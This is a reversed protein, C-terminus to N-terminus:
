VINHAIESTTGNDTIAVGGAGALANCFGIQSNLVRANEIYVGIGGAPTAGSFDCGIASVNRVNPNGAAAGRLQLGYGSAAGSVFLSNRHIANVIRVSTIFGTTAGSGDIVIGRRHGISETDSIRTDVLDSTDTVLTAVRIADKRISPNPNASDVFRCEYGEIRTPGINGGFAVAGIAVLIGTQDSSEDDTAETRCDSIQPGRYTESPAGGSVATIAWTFSGTPSVSGIHQCNDIRGGEVNVITVGSQCGGEIRTNRVEPDFPTANFGASEWRVGYSAAPTPQTLLSDVSLFCDDVVENGDLSSAWIAATAIRNFSSSGSVDVRCRRVRSGQGMDIVGLFGAGGPAAIPAPSVIGVDEMEAFDDLRVVAQSSGADGPTGTLTSIAATFGSLSGAGLLRCNVPVTFAHTSVGIVASTAVISCPRLRIDIPVGGAAAAALANRLESGDGPDLYDCTVSVVDGTV